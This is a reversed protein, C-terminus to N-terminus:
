ANSAKWQQFGQEYIKKNWAERKADFFDRDITKMIDIPAVGSDFATFYADVPLGSKKILWNKFIAKTIFGRGSKWRGVIKGYPADATRYRLYPGDNVFNEKEFLM